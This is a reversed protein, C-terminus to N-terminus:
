KLQGRTGKTWNMFVAFAMPLVVYANNLGSVSIGNAAGLLILVATMRRPVNARRMAVWVAVFAMLLGAIGFDFITRLFYSHLIVAYCSGDGRSSLLTSYFSLGQCTFSSLETIPPAGFLWELSSFQSTEFVFHNYFNLRDLTDFNTSRQQLVYIPIITALAAAIAFIYRRFLGGRDAFFAVYFVVVVFGFAASRSGSIVITFGLLLLYNMARPGLTEYSLVLLGMFLFLEYNNETLIAPRAQFGLLAVCYCYKAFAAFILFKTLRAVASAKFIGKGVYAM